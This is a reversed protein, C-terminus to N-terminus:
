SERLFGICGSDLRKKGDQDLGGEGVMYIVKM